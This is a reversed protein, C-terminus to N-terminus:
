RPRPAADPLDLAGAGLGLGGSELADLATLAGVLAAGNRTVRRAAVIRQAFWRGRSSTLDDYRVAGGSATSHIIRNGGAYIAVHSIPAGREAFLVLDGPRLATIRAPVRAGASAQQRSTRPLRVQHRAFVYQVFGSCDFGTRPSTGGWQYKVGLYRRATPLVRAGVPTAARSARESAAVVAGAIHVVDRTTLRAAPRQAAASTPLSAALALVLTTAHRPV